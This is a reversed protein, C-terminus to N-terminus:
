YSTAEARRKPEEDFGLILSIKVSIPQFNNEDSTPMAPAIVFNLNHFDITPITLNLAHDTLFPLISM